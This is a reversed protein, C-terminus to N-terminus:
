VQYNFQIMLQGRVGADQKNVPKQLLIICCQLWIALLPHSLSMWIFCIGCLRSWWLIYILLTHIDSILMQLTSSSFFLWCIQMLLMLEWRNKGTQGDILIPDSVQHYKDRELTAGGPAPRTEAGVCLSQCCLQELCRRYGSSPCTAFARPALEM